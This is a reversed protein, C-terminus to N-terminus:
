GHYIDGKRGNHALRALWSRPLGATRMDITTTTRPPQVVRYDLGHREAYTIADILTPFVLRRSANDRPWGPRELWGGSVPDIELVWRQAVQYIRCFPRGSLGGAQRPLLPPRRSQVEAAQTQLTRTAAQSPTM